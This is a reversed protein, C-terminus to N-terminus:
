SNLTALIPFLGEKYGTGRLGCLGNSCFPFEASLPAVCFMTGAIRTM